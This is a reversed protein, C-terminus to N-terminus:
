KKKSISSSAFSSILNNTSEGMLIKEKVEQIFLLNKLMDKDEKLSPIYGLNEVEIIANYIIKARSLKLKLWYICPNVITFNRGFNFLFIYILFKFILLSFNHYFFAFNIACM